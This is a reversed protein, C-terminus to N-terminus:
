IFTIPIIWQLITEWTSIGNQFNHIVDITSNGNCRNYKIVPCEYNLNLAFQSHGTIIPYGLNDIKLSFVEDRGNAYPGVYRKVWSQYVQSVLNSSFFFILIVIQLITKKM